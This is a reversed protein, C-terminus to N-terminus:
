LLLPGLRVAGEWWARWRCGQRQVIHFCGELDPSCTRANPLEGSLQNTSLSLAEMGKLEGLWAPISGKM